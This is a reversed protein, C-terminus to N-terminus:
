CRSLGGKKVREVAAAQLIESGLRHLRDRLEFETKGFLHANDKSALLEALSRFENAVKTEMQQFIAAASQKQEESIELKATAPTSTEQCM